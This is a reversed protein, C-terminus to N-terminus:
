SSMARTAEPCRRPDTAGSVLQVVVEAGKDDNTFGSKVLRHLLPGALQESLCAAAKKDPVLVHALKSGLDPVCDMSLDAATDAQEDSMQVPPGGDAMAQNGVLVGTERLTDLGFTDVLATAVCRADKTELALGNPQSLATALSDAAAKKQDASAGCATLACAIVVACLVHSASRMCSM